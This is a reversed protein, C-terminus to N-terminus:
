TKGREDRRLAGAEFQGLSPGSETIEMRAAQQTDMLCDGCQVNEPRTESDVASIKKCRPCYLRYRTKTM